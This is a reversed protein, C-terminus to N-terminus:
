NLLSLKKLADVAASKTAAQKSPGSGSGYIKGNVIVDVDFIKSHDPGTAKKTVYQPTSYGQAQAWEQFSSKPDETKHNLLIDDSSVELLPSIFDIVADIGSDLFLAGIVAEFTDCLLTSRERGGGYSEGKGLRM